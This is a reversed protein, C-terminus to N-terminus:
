SMSKETSPIPHNTPNGVTHIENIEVGHFNLNGIAGTFQCVFRPTQNSEHKSKNKNKNKAQAVEYHCREMLLGIQHHKDAM